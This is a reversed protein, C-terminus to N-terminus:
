KAPMTLVQGVRIDDANKISPNLKMIEQMRKTTGLQTQAIKALSDGSKITYTNGKTSAKDAAKEPQKVLAKELQKTQESKKADAKSPEAKAVETKGKIGLVSAEPIRVRVGVRVSGNSGIRDKNYKALAKWAEGNGYYKKAISYASDGSAVTHWRDEKAPKAEPAKVDPKAVDPKTAEPKIAEPKAITPEPLLPETPGLRMEGGVIKTAPENSGGGTLSASQPGQESPMSVSSNAVTTEPQVGLGARPFTVDSVPLGPVNNQGLPLPTIDLQPPLAADGNIVAGARRVVEGTITPDTAITSPSSETIGGLTGQTISVFPEPEKAPAQAVVVPPQEPLKAELQAKRGRSLHDSILVTVLLMVSFGVILALKLERTV